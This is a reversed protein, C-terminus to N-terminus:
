APTVREVEFIAANRGQGLRDRNQHEYSWTKDPRHILHDIVIMELLDEAQSENNGTAELLPAFVRKDWEHGKMDATSFTTNGDVVGDVMLIIERYQAGTIAEIGKELEGQNEVRVETDKSNKKQLM